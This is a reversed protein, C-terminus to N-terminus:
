ARIPSPLVACRRIGVCLWTLDTLIALIPGSLATGGINCSIYILQEIMTSRRLHRIVNKHLGSRPPDVIAVVNGKDKEDDSECMEMVDAIADEASAARFDCNTIGNLAMNAKANVIAEACIDMGIVRRVSQSLSIGITGTGCCVDLLTTTPNLQDCQTRVVELLTEAGKTNVQFFAEPAVQFSFNGMKEIIFPKGFILRGPESDSSAGSMSTNNNVFLSSLAVAGKAAHEKMYDGLKALEAEIAAKEEDTDQVTVIVMAENELSTRVTMLRWFGIHTVRDHIPLASQRLFDQFIQALAKAIPSLHVCEAPEVVTVTGEVYAGLLHGVTIADNEGLGITFECKNRYRRCRARAFRPVLVLM